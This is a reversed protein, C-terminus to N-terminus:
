KKMAALAADMDCTHKGMSGGNDGQLKGGPYLTFQEDYAEVSIGKGPVVKAPFGGGAARITGNKIRISYRKGSVDVKCKYAKALAPVGATGLGLALAAGFCLWKM